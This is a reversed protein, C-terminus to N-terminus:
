IKDANKPTLVAYVKKEFDICEICSCLSGVDDLVKIYLNKTVGYFHSRFIELKGSYRFIRAASHISKQNQGRRAREDFRLILGFIANQLM